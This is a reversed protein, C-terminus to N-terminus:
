GSAAVLEAPDGAHLARGIQDTLQRLSSRAEDRQRQLDALEAEVAALRAVAAQTRQEAAAAETELRDREQRAARLLEEVDVATAREEIAHVKVLRADAEARAEALIRDAEEGAADIMECAEEAALRLIEVLRESVTSVRRERPTEALQRRAMALETACAGFRELLQDTRRRASLLDWETQAVYNDVELRDYGHLRIRFAPRSGSDGREPAEIAPVEPDATEEELLDVLRTPRDDEREQGTTRGDGRDIEARRFM